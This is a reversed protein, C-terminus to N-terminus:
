FPPQRHPRHTTALGGGALVGHVPDAPAATATREVAGSVAVHVGVRAGHQLVPHLREAQVLFFPHALSAQLAPGATATRGRPSEDM